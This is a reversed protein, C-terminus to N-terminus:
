RSKRGYRGKKSGWEFPRVNEEPFQIMKEGVQVNGSYKNEVVDPTFVYPMPLNGGHKDRISLVIDTMNPRKEFSNTFFALTEQAKYEDWAEDRIEVYKDMYANNDARSGHMTALIMTKTKVDERPILFDSEKLKPNEQLIKGLEEKSSTIFKNMPINLPKCVKEYLGASWFQHWKLLNFPNLLIHKALFGIYLKSADPKQAIIYGMSTKPLRELEEKTIKSPDITRDTELLEHTPVGAYAYLVAPITGGSIASNYAVFDMAPVEKGNATSPDIIKKQSFGRLTGFCASAARMSGGAMAIGIEDKGAEGIELRTGPDSASFSLATEVILLLLVKKMARQKNRIKLFAVM